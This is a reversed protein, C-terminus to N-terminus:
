TDYGSVAGGAPGRQDVGRVTLGMPQVGAQRWETVIDAYAQRLLGGLSRGLETQLVKRVEARESVDDIARIMAHGVIEPRLPNRDQERRSDGLLSVVYAGLERLEWECTQAIELAFREASVELELERDEVLSLADWSTPQPTEGARPAVERLLRQDFSENFALAFVASKRNLEFQAGLLADRQFVNNTALAALGLSEITRETAARAAHKIRQVANELPAPLRHVPNPKM